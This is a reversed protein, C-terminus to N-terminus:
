FPADDAAGPDDPHEAAYALRYDRLLDRLQETVAYIVEARGERPALPSRHCPPAHRLGPLDPWAACLADGAIELAADLIALAALEPATAIRRWPPFHERTNV